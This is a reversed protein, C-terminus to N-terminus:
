ASWTLAAFQDAHDWEHIAHLLLLGRVGPEGLGEIRIRPNGSIEGAMELAREFERDCIDLTARTEARDMVRVEAQEDPSGGPDEGALQQFALQLWYMMELLHSAIEGASWVPDGDIEDTQPRFAADPLGALTERMAQRAERITAVLDTQSYESAVNEITNQRRVFVADELDLLDDRDISAM